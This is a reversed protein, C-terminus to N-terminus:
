DTEPKLGNPLECREVDGGCTLKKFGVNTKVIALTLPSQKHTCYPVTTQEYSAERSGSISRSPITERRICFYRCQSM